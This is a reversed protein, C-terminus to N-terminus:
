RPERYLATHSASHEPRSVEAGGVGDSHGLETVVHDADVDIGALDGFQAAPIDREVFGSQPLHQLAVDGGPPQPEGGVVRLRGLEGVHVEQAHARRLLLPLVGCVQAVDVRHDVGQHRLQAAVRHDDALGGHRHAGGGVQACVGSVQGRGPQRHLHRPVRLEQALTEGDVVCQVGVADHEAHLAVRSQGLLRDAVEVGRQQGVPHREQEGVQLGGFQDLDGGIGKQRGLDREDVGDRLHAFGDVGVDCQQGVRQAVVRADTAAEEVGAEPEAAAAQGLVDACEHGAGAFQAGVM